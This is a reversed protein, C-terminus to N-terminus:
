GTTGAVRNILWHAHKAPLLHSLKLKPNFDMELLDTETVRVEVDPDQEALCQPCPVMPIFHKECVGDRQNWYPSDLKPM